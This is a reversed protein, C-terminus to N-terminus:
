LSSRTDDLVQIERVFRQLSTAGPPEVVLDVKGGIKLVTGTLSEESSEYKNGRPDLLSTLSTPKISLVSGDALQVDLGSYPHFRKVVARKYKSGANANTAVGAAVKLSTLFKIAAEDDPKLDDAGEVRLLYCSFGAVIQRVMVTKGNETTILQEECEAGALTPLALKRKMSENGYSFKVLADMRAKQTSRRSFEPANQNTDLFATISFVRDGTVLQVSEHEAGQERWKDSLLARTSINQLTSLIDLREVDPSPFEIQFGIRAGGIEAWDLDSADTSDEPEESAPNEVVLSDFFGDVFPSEADVEEGEVAQLFMREDAILIRQIRTKGREANALKIEVGPHNDISMQQQDQIEFGPLMAPLQEAFSNLRTTVDSTDAGDESPNLVGVTVSYDLNERNARVGKVQSFTERLIVAGPSTDDISEGPTFSETVEPFNVRFHLEADAETFWAQDEPKETTLSASSVAGSSGANDGSNAAAAEATSGFTKPVLPKPKPRSPDYTPAADGAFLFYGTVGLGIVAASISSILIVRSREM